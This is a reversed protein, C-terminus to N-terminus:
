ARDGRYAPFYGSEVHTAGSLRGYVQRNLIRGCLFASRTSDAWGRKFRTLGDSTDSRVGSGAGLGVLEVGRGRLLDFSYAFAAYSASAEYGRESYAALHYYAVSGQAYWLVMGVGEAGCMARVAVIGPTSLQWRFAERSFAAIGTIGHRMSLTEYYSIWEDLYQSPDTCEVVDVRKESKRILRRHQSAPEVAARGRLTCVFHEKYSTCLDPFAAHLTAEDYSGFPDTVVCVSVTDSGLEDLDRGLASWDQCVFLPYVGMGDHHPTNPVPRRIIWGGSAPLRVPEGIEAFSSAYRPHAYGAIM